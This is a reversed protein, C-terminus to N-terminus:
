TGTGADGQVPLDTEFQVAFRQEVAPLFVGDRFARHEGHEVYALFGAADDFDAVIAFDLNGGQLAADPGFSYARIEPILAPLRGLGDFVARRQGDDADSRFAVVVVHRLGM